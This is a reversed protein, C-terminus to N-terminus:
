YAGRGSLVVGVTRALIRLDVLLSWHEIYEREMRVIREFDTILNRGNVQWPGTMGPVVSLRELHHPEYYAVEDPLPPRPGVLSMEGRLVNLLQPLEDLSTRRLVRGVRTVRPDRRAKFIPAAGYDNLYAVQARTAHASAQMSRFKWMTFPAGGLGVRRQRYFVPGRSDLKIALAIGGILPLGVVLALATLVLDLGRKLLLEPLELEAPHLRFAPCDGIRVPEARAHTADLAWPVAYCRAGRSFAAEVTGRLVAERLPSVLLVEQVDGAALVAALEPLAGLAGREPYPGPSVFGVVQQDGSGGHVLRLAARTDRRRGVLVARRLGLGRAYAQRVARDVALRATTLGVVALAAFTAVAGVSFARADFPTGTSPLGCVLLIAATLGVGAALRTISRRADGARYAGVANLALLMVATAVLAAGSARRIALWAAGFTVAADFAHLSVVRGVARLMAVLLRRHALERALRVDLLGLPTRVGAPATWAGSEFHPDPMGAVPGPSTRAVPNHGDRAPLTARPRVTASM